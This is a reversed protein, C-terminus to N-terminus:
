ECRRLVIPPVSLVNGPYPYRFIGDNIVWGAGGIKLDVGPSYKWQGIQYYDVVHKGALITRLKLGAHRYRRNKVRKGTDGQPENRLLGHFSVVASFTLAVWVENPFPSLGVRNIV